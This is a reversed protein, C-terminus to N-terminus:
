RCRYEYIIHTVHVNLTLYFWSCKPYGIHIQGVDIAPTLFIRSIRKNIQSDLKFIQPYNM